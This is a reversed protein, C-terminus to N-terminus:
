TNHYQSQTNRNELAIHSSVIPHAWQLHFAGFGVVSSDPSGRQSELVPQDTLKQMWFSQLINLIAFIAIICHLSHKYM